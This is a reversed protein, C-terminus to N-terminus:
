KLEELIKDVKEPTLEEYYRHGAQMMPATGCSALCEVTSLKFRGDATQEGAKIGLKKELYALLKASGRLWCPLTRCVQLHHRACSKRQFMTYFTIVEYVAAPTLDLVKAVAETAEASIWGEQEQVMWLVPLIAARRAPYRACITEIQELQPGSFTFAM